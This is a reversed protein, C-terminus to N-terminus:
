CYQIKSNDIVTLYEDANLHPWESCGYISESEPTMRSVAQVPTLFIFIVGNILPLQPTVCMCTKNQDNDNIVRMLVYKYTHTKKWIQWLLQVNLLCLIVIEALTCDPSIIPGWLSKWIITQPCAKVLHYMVSYVSQPM